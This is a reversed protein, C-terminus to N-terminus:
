TGHVGCGPECATPQGPWGRLSLVRAVQAATRCRGATCEYWGFRLSVEGREALENDRARDHHRNEEPHTLAGDLEVVTGYARYHVDRYRRTAGSGEAANREGRPLRHGREVDRAYRLELPTAVGEGVERLVDNVLRRWRLRARRGLADSLRAPTSVRRQCARLVVDLVNAETTAADVIDLVTQEVRTRPPVRVPHVSDPCRRSPHIAIGEQVSVRRRAPIAVHVEAPVEDFLGELWAATDHSAAAGSGAYLLAGWVRSLDSIPGSHAVVVGPHLRQWLGMDVRRGFTSSAMGAALAQPRALVAEQGAAM